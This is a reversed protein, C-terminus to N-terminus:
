PTSFCNFAKHQYFNLDERFAKINGNTDQKRMLNLAINIVSAIMRSRSPDKCRIRDEGLTMDRLYHDAEIAWHKRVGDFLVQANHATLPLNSIFYAREQSQKQDKLRLRDRDIVILSEIHTDRWRKDLWEAKLEYVAAVRKELRGHAKDRSELEYKGELHQSLHACEALLASQNAKVQTLYVGQKSEIDALLAPDTHLADLSYAQTLQQQQSFYAKVVTKESEKSGSYFGIIESQSGQHNVLHVVNEGRKEGAVGDITGRLEKGDVAQWARTQESLEVGFYAKNLVNYAQYDVGALLRRLQADSIPSTSEYGLEECLGQHEKQMRRQLSAVQLQTGSRLIALLFGTLVFALEHRKGRNDRKDVLRSQLHEFYLKVENTPPIPLRM